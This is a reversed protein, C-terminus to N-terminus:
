NLFTSYWFIYEIIHFNCVCFKCLLLIGPEQIGDGWGDKDEDPRSEQATQYTEGEWHHHSQSHPHNHPHSQYPTMYSGDWRTGWATWWRRSGREWTHCPAPMTSLSSRLLSTPPLDTSWRTSRESWLQGLKTTSSWSWRLLGIFQKSFQHLHNSFTYFSCQIFM